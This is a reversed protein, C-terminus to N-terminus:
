LHVGRRSFSGGSTALSIRLSAPSSQKSLSSCTMQFRTLVDSYLVSLLNTRPDQQMGSRFTSDCTTLRTTAARVGTVPHGPPTRVALISLRGRQLATTWFCSLANACVVEERVEEVSCEYKRGMKLMVGSWGRRTCSVCVRDDEEKVYV